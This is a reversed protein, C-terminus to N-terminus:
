ARPGRARRLGCLGAATGPGLDAPDHALVERGGCGVCGPRPARGSTPRIM